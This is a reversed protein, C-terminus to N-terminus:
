RFFIEYTGFSHDRKSNCYKFPQKENNLIAKFHVPDKISQNVQDFGNFRLNWSEKAIINKFYVNVAQATDSENKVM